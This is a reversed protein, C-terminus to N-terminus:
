ILVLEGDKVYAKCNARGFTSGDAYNWYVLIFFERLMMINWKYCKDCMLKTLPIDQLHCSDCKKM